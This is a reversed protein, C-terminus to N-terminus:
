PPALWWEWPREQLTWPNREGCSANAGHSPRRARRHGPLCATPPIVAPIGFTAAGTM